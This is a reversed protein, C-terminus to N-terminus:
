HILRSTDILGHLEMQRLYFEQDTKRRGIGVDKSDAYQAIFLNGCSCAIETKDRFATLDYSRNCLPCKM